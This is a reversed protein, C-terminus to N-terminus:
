SGRVAEAAKEIAEPLDALDEVVGALKNVANGLHKDVEGAFGTLQEGISGAADSLEGVVNALAEDVDEFRKQYDAFTLKASNAVAEMQSAMERLTALQQEAATKQSQLADLMDTVGEAIAESAERVPESAQALDNAAKGFRSTADNAAVTLQGGLRETSASADAMKEAQTSANKSAQELNGGFAQLKTASDTISATFKRGSEEFRDSFEKFAKELAEAAANAAEEAGEAAAQSLAKAANSSADELQKRTKDVADETAKAHRDAQEAFQGQISTLTTGVSSILGQLEVGADKLLESNREAGKDWAEQTKRMKDNFEDSAKRQQEGYADGIEGIHGMLKDFSASMTASTQSFLTAAEVIRTNADDASQGLQEPISGLKETMTVLAAALAQMEKGATQGIAEGVKDTVGKTLEDSLGQISGKIDGLVAVMPQLNDNFKEAIAAALENALKSQAIAMQQLHLEQSAAIRQVPLYTLGKELADTFEGIATKMTAQLKSDMWRLYISASVGAASTLFKAATVSLLRRLADQMSGVTGTANATGNASDLAAATSGLAAIIGVFTLVLGVAVAINAWFLLGRSQDALPAFFEDPRVTNKLQEAQLDVISEEFEVWARQFQPNSGEHAVQAIDQYQAKLAARADDENSARVPALAVNASAFTTVLPHIRLKAQRGLHWAGLLIAIACFFAFEQTFVGGLVAIFGSVFGSM